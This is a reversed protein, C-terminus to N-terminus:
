RSLVLEGSSALAVPPVRVGLIREAPSAHCLRVSPVPFGLPAACAGGNRALNRSAGDVDMGQEETLGLTSLTRSKGPLHLM